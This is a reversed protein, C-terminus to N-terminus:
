TAACTPWPRYVGLPGPEISSGPAYDGEHNCDFGFWWGGDAASGPAAVLGHYSLGGHVDAEVDARELGASWASGM